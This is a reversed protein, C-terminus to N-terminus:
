ILITMWASYISRIFATLTDDIKPLSWSIAILYVGSSSWYWLTISFSMSESVAILLNGSASPWSLCNIRFYSLSISDIASIWAFYFYILNSSINLCSSPLSSSALITMSISSMVFNLTGNAVSETQGFVEYSVRM